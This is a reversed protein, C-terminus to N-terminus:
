KDSKSEDRSSPAKPPDAPKTLATKSREGSIFKFAQLDKHDPFSARTLTFIAHELEPSMHAVAVQSLPHNETPRRVIRIDHCTFCCILIYDPEVDGILIAVGPTFGCDTLGGYHNFDSAMKLVPRFTEEALEKTQWGKALQERATGKWELVQYAYRLEDGVAQLRALRVRKVAALRAAIGRRDFLEDVDNVHTWRGVAQFEALSHFGGDDEARSASPFIMLAATTIALLSAKM